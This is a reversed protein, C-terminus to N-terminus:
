YSGDEVEGKLNEIFGKILAMCTPCPKYNHHGARLGVSRDRMDIYNTLPYGGDCSEETTYEKGCVGCTVQCTYEVWPNRTAVKYDFNPKDGYLKDAMNMATGWYVYGKHYVGSGILNGSDDYQEFWIRWKMENLM